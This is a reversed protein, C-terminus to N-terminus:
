KQISSSCTDSVHEIKSMKFMNGHMVDGSKTETKNPTSHESASGSTEMYKGSIKVTHNLHKALKEGGAITVGKGTDDRLVYNGGQGQELCGTMTMKGSKGHEGSIAIGLPLLLFAVAFYTFRKM